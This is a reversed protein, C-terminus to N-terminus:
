LHCYIQSYILLAEGGVLGYQLVRKLSPPQSLKVNKSGFDWGCLEWLQWRVEPRTAGTPDDKAMATKLDAVSTGQFSLEWTHIFILRLSALFESFFFRDIPIELGHLTWWCCGWRYRNRAEQVHRRHVVNLAADIFITVQSSGGHSM